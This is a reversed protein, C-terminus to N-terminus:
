IPNSLPASMVILTACATGVDGKIDAGQVTLNSQEPSGVYCDIDAGGTDRADM